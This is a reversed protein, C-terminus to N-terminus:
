RSKDPVYACSHGRFTSCEGRRVKEELVLEMDRLLILHEFCVGNEGLREEESLRLLLDRLQDDSCLSLFPPNDCLHESGGGIIRDHCGYLWVGRIKCNDGGNVLSLKPLMGKSDYEVGNYGFLIGACGDMTKVDSLVM